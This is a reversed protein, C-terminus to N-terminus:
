RNEWDAPYGTWFLRTPPPCQHLWVGSLSGGGKRGRLPRSNGGSRRRKRQGSGKRRWSSGPPWCRMSRGVNGVPKRRRRRLRRTVNETHHIWHWIRHPTAAVCFTEKGRGPSSDLFGTSFIALFLIRNHKKPIIDNFIKQVLLYPERSFYLCWKKYSLSEALTPKLDYAGM